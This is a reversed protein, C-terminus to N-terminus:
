KIKIKKSKQAPKPELKPLTVTLVGHKLEADVKNTNLDEPLEISRYFSTGSCERKLWNKGKEETTEDCEAKIELGNQKVEIEINEKPIGPVELRMEYHDGLDAINMPPTRDQIYTTLTNTGQSPWFLDDFGSRFSDFLSDMDRWIDYPRRETLEGKKQKREIIKDKRDKRIPM